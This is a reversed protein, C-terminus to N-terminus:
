FCNFWNNIVKSFIQQRILSCISLSNLDSPICEISDVYGEFLKREDITHLTLDIGKYFYLNKKENIKDAIKFEKQAKLKYDAIRQNWEVDNHVRIRTQKRHRNIYRQNLHRIWYLSREKYKM